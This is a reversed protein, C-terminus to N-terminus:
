IRDATDLRSRDITELRELLRRGAAARADLHAPAVSPLRDDYRHDGVSTALLPEDRLRAQWADDLLARLRAGEGSPTAAALLSFTVALLSVRSGRTRDTPSSARPWSSCTPPGSPWGGCTGPSGTNATASSCACAGAARPWGRRSPASSAM